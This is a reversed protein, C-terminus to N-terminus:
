GYRPHFRTQLLPPVSYQPGLLSIIWGNYYTSVYKCCKLRYVWSGACHKGQLVIGLCILGGTEANEARAVGLIERDLRKQEILRYGRFALGIM